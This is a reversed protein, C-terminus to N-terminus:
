ALVCLERSGPNTASEATEVNIRRMKDVIPQAVGARPPGAEGTSWRRRPASRSRTWSTPWSASSRSRTRRGAVEAARSRRCARGDSGQGAAVSRGEAGRLRDVPLGGAPLLPDQARPRPQHPQRDPERHLRQRVAAARQRHRRPRDAGARRGSRDVRGRREGAVARRRSRSDDPRLRRRHRPQAGSVHRPSPGRHVPPRDPAPARRRGGSQVARHARRRARRRRRAAAAIMEDAEALSRAMPKEVLSRARRAQSFRCRSARPSDRDARRHDRRRGPRAARARRLVRATAAPPRLRRPAPRNTDVVAVLEVGPLVVSDARSAQRPPRRRHGGDAPEHM